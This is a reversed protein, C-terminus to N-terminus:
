RLIKATEILEPKFLIDLKQGLRLNIFLRGQRNKVIPIQSPQKGELIDLAASAAWIGQEEPIKAITILAYPALWVHTTGVPIRTNEQIFMLGAENNWGRIGKPNELIIMDVEDQLSLFGRKWQEFDDVFVQRDFSQGLNKEFHNANRHGSVANISIIGIREGKAYDRLQDRLSQILSVEEMGTTNRYPFGYVSADWNVGCFVFPIDADEYFPQIVHKAANDDATIVVDPQYRDIEAKAELAAQKIQEPDRQRKTDMYFKKLEVPKEKLTQQIGKEVGDSWEYGAHYSNIFLVKKSSEAMVVPPTLLCVALFWSSLPFTKM